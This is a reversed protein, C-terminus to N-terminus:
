STNGRSPPGRGIGSGTYRTERRHLASYDYNFAALVQRTSSIMEQPVNALVATTMTSTKTTELLSDSFKHQLPFRQRREVSFGGVSGAAGRAQLAAGTGQANASGSSVGFWVVGDGSYGFSQSRGVTREDASSRGTRLGPGSGPGTSPSIVGSSLGSSYGSANCDSTARQFAPATSRRHLLATAASLIAPAFGNASARAALAGQADGAATAPAAGGAAGAAGQGPHGDEVYYLDPLGAACADLADLELSSRGSSTDSLTSGPARARARTAAAAESSSSYLTSRDVLTRLRQRSYHIANQRAREAQKRDASATVVGGGGVSPAATACEPGVQHRRRRMLAEQRARLIRLGRRLRALSAEFHGLRARRWAVERQAEALRERAEFAAVMQEGRRQAQQGDEQGGHQQHHGELLTSGVSECPAPPHNAATRAASAAASAARQAEVAAAHVAGALTRGEAEALPEWRERLLQELRQLWLPPPQYRLEVLCSAVLAAEAPSLSPLLEVCQVLLGRMWSDEPACGLRTLAWLLMPLTVAQCCEADAEVAARARASPLVVAAAAAAAAAADAGPGPLGEGDSGECAMRRLAAELIPRLALPERGHPSSRVAATEKAAVRGAARAPGVAAAAAAAPPALAGVPAEGGAAAASAAAAAATAAGAGAGAAAAAPPRWDAPAVWGMRRMRALSYLLLAASHPGFEHARRSAARLLADLLRPGPPRHLRVCSWLATSVLQPGAEDRAALAALRAGLPRLAEAPPVFRLRGLAWLANGVDQPGFQEAGRAAARCLRVMAGAPPRAGGRRGGGGGGIPGLAALAWLLGALDVPKARDLAAVAAPSPALLPATVSATWDPPVVLGLKAVGWLANCVDQTSCAGPRLTVAARGLAASVWEEPLAAAASAAAPPPLPGAAATAAAAAAMRLTALAWLSQSIDYASFYPMSHLSASLWVAMFRRGPPHRLVALAWLCSSLERPSMRGASAAAGAAAVAAELWARGPQMGLKAVGSLLAVLEQPRFSRFGWLASVAAALRRLQEGEAVRWGAARLRALAALCTALQRPGIGQGQGAGALAEDPSWADLRPGPGATGGAASAAAPAPTGRARLQAWAATLDRLFATELRCVLEQLEVAEDAQSGPADGGGAASGAPARPLQMRALLTLAATVHVGNM